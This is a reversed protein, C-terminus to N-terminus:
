LRLIFEGPRDVPFPIIKLGRRLILTDYKEFNFDFYSNYMDDLRDGGPTVVTGTSSNLITPESRM